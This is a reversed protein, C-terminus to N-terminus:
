SSTVSYAVMVQWHGVAVDPTQSEQTQGPQGSNQKPGTQQVVPQLSRERARVPEPFRCLPNMYCSPRRLRAPLFPPLVSPSISPPRVQGSKGVRRTHPAPKWAM